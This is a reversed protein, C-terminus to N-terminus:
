SFSRWCKKKLVKVSFRKDNKIKSHIIKLSNDSSNDDIIICEFNIMTQLLVSRLTAGITKESNYCPIIISVKDM